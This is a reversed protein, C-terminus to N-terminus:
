SRGPELVERIRQEVTAPEPPGGTGEYAVADDVSVRFIHEQLNTLVVDDLADETVRLLHDALYRARALDGCNARYEIEVRPM